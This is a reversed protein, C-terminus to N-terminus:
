EGFDTRIDGISYYVKGAEYPIGRAAFMEEMTVLQFGRAKLEPIITRCAEITEAHIDHMLIIDGDAAKKVEDYLVCQITAEPDRTEWDLTDVNWRATPIQPQKQNNQQKFHFLSKYEGVYSM